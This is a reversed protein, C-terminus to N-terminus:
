KKDDKKERGEKEGKRKRSEKIEREETKGAKGRGESSTTYSEKKRGKRM